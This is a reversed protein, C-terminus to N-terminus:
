RICQRLAAMRDFLEKLLLVGAEAEQRNPEENADNWAYYVAVKALVHSASLSTLLPLFLGLARPRMKWSVTFSRSRAMM